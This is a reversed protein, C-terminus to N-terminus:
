DRFRRRIKSKPAQSRIAWTDEVSNGYGLSNVQGGAGKSAPKTNSAKPTERLKLTDGTSIWRSANVEGQRAATSAVV